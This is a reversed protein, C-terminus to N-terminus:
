FNKVEREVEREIDKRKKVERKEYAKRGRALGLEVKVLGRKTYMSLPVLTVGKTEIKQSLKLIEKRTLLLKRTRDPQYDKIKSFEYEPVVTNILWAEGSMIKVYAGSLQVRGARVSKAEGGSLMVGAEFKDLIQYDHYAKKNTVKM